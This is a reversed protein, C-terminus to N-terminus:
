IQRWFWVVDAQARVAGSKFKTLYRHLAWFFFFSTMLWTSEQRDEGTEAILGVVNDGPDACRRGHWAASLLVSSTIVNLAHSWSVLIHLLWGWCSVWQYIFHHCQDYGCSFTRASFGPHEKVWLVRGLVTESVGVACLLSFFFDGAHGTITMRVALSQLILDRTFTVAPWLDM